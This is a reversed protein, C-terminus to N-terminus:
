AKKCGCESLLRTKIIEGISVNLDRIAYYASTVKNVNVISVTNHLQSELNGLKILMEALERYDCNGPEVIPGLVAGMLEECNQKSIGLGIKPDTEEQLLSCLKKVETKPNEM